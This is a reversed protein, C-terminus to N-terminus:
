AWTLQTGIIRGDPLMLFLYRTHAGAAETVRITLSGNADFAFMVCRSATITHAITGTAGITLSTVTASTYATAAGGDVGCWALLAITKKLSKTGAKPVLQVLVDFSDGVQAGETGPTILLDYFDLGGDQVHLSQNVGGGQKLNGM